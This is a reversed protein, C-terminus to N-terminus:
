AAAKRQMPAEMARWLAPEDVEDLLAQLDAATGHGDRLAMAAYKVDAILHTQGGYVWPRTSLERDCATIISALEGATFPATM